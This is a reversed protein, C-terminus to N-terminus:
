PSSASSVESTEHKKTIERALTIHRDGLAERLVPNICVNFNNKTVNSPANGSPSRM